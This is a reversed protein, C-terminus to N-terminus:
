AGGCRRRCTRSPWGTQSSPWAAARGPISRTALRSGRRPGKWPRPSGARPVPEGVITQPEKVLSDEHVAATVLRDHVRLWDPMHQGTGQGPRHQQISALLVAAAADICEPHSAHERAHDHHRQAQRRSRTDVKGHIGEPVHDKLEPNGACLKSGIASDSRVPTHVARRIHARGAQRTIPQVPGAARTKTRTASSASSEQASTGCRLVFSGRRAAQAKSTM